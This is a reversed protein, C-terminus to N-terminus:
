PAALEKQIHARVVADLKSDACLNTLDAPTMGWRAGWKKVAYLEVGPVVANEYFSQEGFGQGEIQDNYMQVQFFPLNRQFRQESSPPDKPGPLGAIILAAADLWEQRDMSSLIWKMAPDGNVAKLTRLHRQYTVISTLAENKALVREDGSQECPKAKELGDRNTYLCPLNKPSDLAAFLGKSAGLCDPTRPTQACLSFATLLILATSSSGKYHRMIDRVSGSM